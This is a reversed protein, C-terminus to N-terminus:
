EERPVLRKKDSTWFEAGHAAVAEMWPLVDEVRRSVQVQYAKL